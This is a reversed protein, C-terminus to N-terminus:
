SKLCIEKERVQLIERDHAAKIVYYVQSKEEEEGPPTLPIMLIEYRSMAPLIQIVYACMYVNSPCIRQYSSLHYSCYYCCDRIKNAQDQLINVIKM